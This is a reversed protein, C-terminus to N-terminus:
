NNKLVDLRNSLTPYIDHLIKYVTGKEETPAKSYINLIEDMKTDSFISFIVSAPRADYAEKLAPLAATIKARGREANTSMDDLGLRHYNYWMQRYVKLRDDTYASAVAHRNNFSDFARWGSETFSQAQNVLSMAKEFFPTGGYLSFSDFDIGLIIYSYFSLVSTLNDNPSTENFDLVDYTNYSFELNQDRFNFTTTVYSANYVPRVAQVQLEAKFQNDQPMESITIYFSCDVRETMSMKYDSWQRNNLFETIANQMETFIQRNSTQIKESNVTVRCNLEQGSVFPTCIIGALLFYVQHIKM